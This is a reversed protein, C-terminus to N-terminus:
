QRRITKEKGCLNCKLWDRDEDFMYTSYEICGNWFHDLKQAVWLTPTEKLTLMRMNRVKYFINM